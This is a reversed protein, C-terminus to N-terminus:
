YSRASHELVQQIHVDVQRLMAPSVACGDTEYTLLPMGQQISLPKLIAESIRFPLCNFPGILIIGDYGEYEANLSKGVTPTIEGFIEPSVHESSKAFQAVVDNPRSILLGTELFIERYHQETRRGSQYGWWQQLYQQGDSDLVRTCAKALAFGGPKLGWNNATGRMGNYTVYLFLDTLDVPKLIIGRAAYLDRVGDMFFPSFRAYFDGTVVVKPSDMPDRMRPLAALGKVFGPLQETFGDLTKANDRFRDWQRHFQELSDAAGVVRLVHDIEVLIDALLVAPSFYKLLTFPDFGLHDNEAEPHVMFTDALRHEVIFREFYDMYAESVCPAGGRMMIFGAIEGPQRDRHIQLLQGISLPLPLCERGSTFQLGLDLQGRGLPVLPGPHLGLWKLAMATSQAHFESFNLMHLRVRPDTLPVAETNSTIVQGGRVLRCPTFPRTLGPLAARYNQVIDLFAELRTQVGADATHADIELILYPKAELESALLSHTFADITCSFNSVCLLFLNSHRKSLAAANLIQNAFHWVTAGAGVPVLCDAPIVSVGMSSLKKGVSQSAEPTYANYSHGALLIAPKDAALARALAQKGLEVLAVEARTQEGMAAAWAENAAERSVGLEHVAMESMAASAALPSTFDLVPSLFRTAPFAKAIFYPGAQTIPCLYSDKGSDQQAMRAVQPLFVLKVDKQALDLVAGHAIQAPLCFGSHSRLDGRPDVASLVVEMGLASFFTSYLPYLSHTTLARPIGIRSEFVTPKGNGNPHGLSEEIFSRAAELVPGVDWYPRPKPVTAPPVEFDGKGRAASGGRGTGSYVIAARQEILDPAPAARTKRKWVNEYLSCRGGFPFKRGNVAFRDISCCMKCARCTFRGVLTMEAAALTELDVITSLAEGCRELALLGVGLAGLLEPSSPIVVPRGVRQAFAHGVARNLAVGGQLLVKKGVPRQGKVKTLYNEVIAYVLGALINDRSQGQQQAIRIDSNIFAACTTKFKVPAAAALAIEAIGSVQVGLDSQASEELFSGTGASCANNMAYGIPVGNRLYIYKADQGGIEFITDVDAAFHTAGAAHASIENFVQETGLWAGILERASGTTSVLGVPRNGVQEMIAQLCARVAAVPDDHTRAYHSAVMARTAPDLLVAKTTTSGADVGLVMAGDPPAQRAPEAMALVQDKFQDLPPLTEFVPPQAIHPTKYLPADRTLLATGWAEFWPSEPLAILETEPLKARLAALLATNRTVGGILLVRRLRNQGKELLAVVKGAMSDHLTKLIDAPTAEHRNLKHTVDSKCHVTCRSALPVVTGSSSLEIAADIELGMRGILQVFFEGSGAACKNHSLVNTVKGEALTYVLFSEGGLSVVADFDLKAQEPARERVERLARQIAAFETVHGLHGSVGFYTAGAFEPQALMQQLVELPRGQHATVAAHQSSLTTRQVGATANELSSKVAVVKVTLAGINIGIYSM